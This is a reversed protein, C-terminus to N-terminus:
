VGNDEYRMQLLLDIYHRAKLLDEKGGKEKYRSVYKVVNGELYGLNNRYIYEVPQIAFHKYHQGGVQKDLPTDEVVGMNGNYIGGVKIAPTGLIINSMDRSITPEAQSSELELPVGEYEARVSSEMFIGGDCDAEECAGSSGNWFCDKCDAHHGLIKSAEENTHFRVTGM